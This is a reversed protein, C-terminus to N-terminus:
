EKPMYYGSGNIIKSSDGGEMRRGRNGIPENLPDKYSSDIDRVAGYYSHKDINKRVESITPAAYFGNKTFVYTYGSKSRGFFVESHQWGHTMVTKGFVADDSSIEKYDNKITETIEEPSEFKGDQGTHFDKGQTGLISSTHCNYNGEDGKSPNEDEPVYDDPNRYADMIAKSYPNTTNFYVQRGTHVKFLTEADKQFFNETLYDKANEKGGLFEMLSQYTDGEEAYLVIGGNEVKPVWRGDIDKTFIPSNASVMYQSGEFQHLPDVSFWRGLKTDLMRAGFDYSNGDGKMEDDAEMGNFGFRFEDALGTKKLNRGKLTVGFPSFDQAQLIDAKYYAVTSGSPHPVVKDSIVSLVNGLHNSLELSSCGDSVSKASSLYFNGRNQYTLRLAGM